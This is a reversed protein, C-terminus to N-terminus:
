YPQAILLYGDVFLVTSGAFGSTCNYYGPPSGCTDASAWAVNGNTLSIVENLHPGFVLDSTVVEFADLEPIPPTALPVATPSFINAGTYCYEIMLPGPGCYNYNNGLLRGNDLWGVPYDSPASILTGSQYVNTTPEVFGLQNYMVPLTESSIAALTGSPSLQVPGGSGFSYSTVAGNAIAITQTAGSSLVEGLVTGGGSLVISTPVANVNSAPFTKILTWSPLSYVSVNGSQDLAALVSGDSSLALPQISNPNATTEFTDTTTNYSFTNGSATNFVARAPSGSISIVDGYSFTRPAGPVSGDIVDGNGVSEMFQSPSIAAFSFHPPPALTDIYPTPLPDAIPLTYSTEVPTAGSLDVVTLSSGLTAGLSSGSIAVIFTGIPFYESSLTYTAVPTASYGVRYVTVTNTLVVNNDVDLPQVATIWNGQGFTPLVPVTLSGELVSALSYEYATNANYDITLFQSGDVFWAYFTGQFPAGVSSTWNASSETEIVGNGAPGMAVLLGSPIALANASSYNGVKSFLLQGAPSWCALQYVNASAACIYSGDSAIKWWSSQVAIEALVSGTASSRVELGTHTQIVITPGAFAMPAPENNGTSENLILAVGSAIQAATAYNWLVWRGTQDETLVHSTDYQLLTLPATHGLNLLINSTVGITLDATHTTGGSDVGTVVYQAAPTSITPTGSIDGGDFVLGAPLAPTISWNKLSSANPKLTQAAFGVTYQYNASGYSFADAARTATL